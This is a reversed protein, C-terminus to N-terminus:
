KLVELKLYHNPMYKQAGNFKRFFAVKIYYALKQQPCWLGLLHSALFSRSWRLGIDSLSNPSTRLKSLMFGLFVKSFNVDEGCQNSRLTPILNWFDSMTCSAYWMKMQMKSKNAFFINPTQCWFVLLLKPHDVYGRSRPQQIM